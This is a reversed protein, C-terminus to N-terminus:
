LVLRGDVVRPMVPTAADRAAAVEVLEDVTSLKALERLTVLTPPLMGIERAALRALAEAPRIWMAHDAEGSINSAEQGPPMVAVFFYTDYRRAEFEPTVWRAWPILAEAPLALGAEEAVERLAARVVARAEDPALGLRGSLDVTSLGTADQPDVSGGPFAYMGSAFAMTAARRLLYVELGDPGTRLLMVTAAVRPTVPPATFQRAREILAEPLPFGDSM